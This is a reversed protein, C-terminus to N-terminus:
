RMIRMMLWATYALLLFYPIFFHFMVSNTDILNRSIAYFIWLISLLMKIISMGLVVYPILNSYGTLRVRLATIELTSLIFVLFYSLLIFIPFKSDSIEALVFHIILLLVTFLGLYIIANREKM